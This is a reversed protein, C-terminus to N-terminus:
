LCCIVASPTCPVQPEVDINEQDDHTTGQEAQARMHRLRSQQPQPRGSAAPSAGASHAGELCVCVMCRKSALICLRSSLSPQAQLSLSAPVTVCESQLKTGIAQGNATWCGLGVLGEVHCLDTVLFTRVGPLEPAARSGAELLAEFPSGRGSCAPPAVPPERAAAASTSHAAPPRRNQGGASAAAAGIAAELM